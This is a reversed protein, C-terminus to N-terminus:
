GATELGPLILKKIIFTSVIDGGFSNNQFFVIRTTGWM